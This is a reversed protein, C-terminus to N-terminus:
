KLERWNGPTVGWAAHTVSTDITTPSKDPPAPPVDLGVTGSMSGGDSIISGLVTSNGNNTFGKVLFLTVDFEYSGQLNVPSSVGHPNIFVFGLVGNNKDWTTPCGYGSATKTGLPGCVNAGSFNNGGNLSGNVYISGDGVYNDTGSALTVDGDIFILGNILLTKKALVYGNSLTMTKTSSNNWAIRGVSNGGSDSVPCDFSSGTFLTVQPQDASISSNNDFSFSGTKCTGAANWNVTPDGAAPLGTTGDIAPTNTGYTYVYSANIDPKKLPSTATSYPPYAWVNSNPSDSCTKLKGQVTCTGVIDAQAFWPKGATGIYSNNRGIYNGGIYVTYTNDTSALLSANGNPCYSGNFWVNAHVSVNGSLAYCNADGKPNNVFLGYGYVGQEDLYGPITKTVWGVVQTLHRTVRGDPSTGWSDILWCTPQGSPCGSTQKTASYSFKGADLQVNRYAADTPLGSSDLPGGLVTGVGSNNSPDNYAVAAVGDNLGAEAITLAREAQRDHDFSTENSTTYDLIGAVAISLALMLVM